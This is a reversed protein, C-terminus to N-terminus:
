EHRSFMGCSNAALNFKQIQTVTDNGHVVFINGYTDFYMTSPSYLRTSASANQNCGIICRFGNPGSSVIRKYLFDVIFLNSDADLVIETPGNLIITVNKSGNGAVTTGNLQNLEFRQIRNNDHDAVFLTLHIDVFIGYPYFLLHREAGPSGNKGAVTIPETLNSLLSKKVVKHQNQMSCYLNNNVDIFIDYCEGSLVTTSPMTTDNFMWKIVHSNNGVYIDGNVTAFLGIGHPWAISINSRTWTQKDLSWVHIYYSGNGGAVYLNNNNDIFTNKHHKPLVAYNLVTNGSSNWTPYSCFKPQNYSLAVISM